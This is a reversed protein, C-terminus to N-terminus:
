AVPRFLVREGRNFASAFAQYEARATAADCNVLSGFYAWVPHEEGFLAFSKASVDYNAVARLMGFISVFGDPADIFIRPEIELRRVKRPASGEVKARNPNRPLFRGGAYHEGNVGVQGGKAARTTKM